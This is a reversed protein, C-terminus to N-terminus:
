EKAIQIGKTETGQRIARALDGTCYQVSIALTFMTTKNWIEAPARWENVILSSTLQLNKMSAKLQGLFNGGMELKTLAKIVFTDSKTM